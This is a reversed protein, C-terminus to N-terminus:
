AQLHPKEDKTEQSCRDVGGEVVFATLVSIGYILTASGCLILIITFARGNNSLEHVEMFGVSAITIITMYLSDFYSWGEIGAYGLMGTVIVVTLAIVVRLLRNYIM